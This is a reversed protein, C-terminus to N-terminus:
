FKFGFLNETMKSFGFWKCTQDIIRFKVVNNIYYLYGSSAECVTERGDVSHSEKELAILFDRQSNNVETYVSQGNQMTQAVLKDDKYYIKLSNNRRGGCKNDYNGVSSYQIKLTDMKGLSETLTKQEFGQSYGITVFIIGIFLILKKKM